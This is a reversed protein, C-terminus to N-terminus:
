IIKKTRSVDCKTEQHLMFHQKKERDFENKTRLMDNVADCKKDGAVSDTYTQVIYAM